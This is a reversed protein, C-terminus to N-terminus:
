VNADADMKTAVSDPTPGFGPMPIFTVRASRVADAILFQVFAGAASLAAQKTIPVGARAIVTTVGTVTGTLAEAALLRIGSRPTLSGVGTAAVVTIDVTVPQQEATEYEFEATLVADAALFLVDGAATVKAQGSALAADEAVVEIVGVGATATRIFGGLLRHAKATSPLTFVHATVAGVAGSVFRRLGSLADGLQALQAVTGIKNPNGENAADRLPRALIM